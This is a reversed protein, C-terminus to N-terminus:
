QKNLHQSFFYQLHERLQILLPKQNNWEIDELRGSDFFEDADSDAGRRSTPERVM